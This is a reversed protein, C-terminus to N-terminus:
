LGAVVFLYRRWGGLVCAQQIAVVWLLFGASLLMLGIPGLAGGAELDTPELIAPIDALSALCIGILLSATAMNALAGTDGVRSARLGIPLFLLRLGSGASLANGQSGVAPLGVFSGFDTLIAGVVRVASGVVTLAGSTRLRSATTVNALPHSVEEDQKEM